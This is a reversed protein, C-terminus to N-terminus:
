NRFQFVFFDIAIDFLFKIFYCYKIKSQTGIVVGSPQTSKGLTEVLLELSLMVEIVVEDAETPGEEDEVTWDIEVAKGVELVVSDIGRISGRVVTEDTSRFAFVLTRRM